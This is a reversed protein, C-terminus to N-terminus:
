VSVQVGLLKQFSLFFDGLQSHLESPHSLVDGLQLFLDGRLVRGNDLLFVPLLLVFLLVLLEFVVLLLDLPVDLARLLHDLGLLTIDCSELIDDTLGLRLLLLLLLVVLHDDVLSINEARLEDLSVLLQGKEVLLYLDLLTCEVLTFDVVLLAQVVNHVDSLLDGVELPLENHRLVLSGADRVQLSFDVQEM